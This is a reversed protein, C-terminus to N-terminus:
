RNSHEYWREMISRIDNLRIPKCLFDNMGISTCLDKEGQMVAGTVAIIPIPSRESKAEETRIKKTMEYGDVEPMHCDTLILKYSRNYWCHFGEAGNNAVDCCLGLKELQSKILKQNFPNDEVLLIDRNDSQVKIENSEAQEIDLEANDFDFSFDDISLQEQQHTKVHKELQKITIPQNAYVAIHPAALAIAEVFAPETYVMINHSSDLQPTLQLFLDHTNTLILNYSSRDANALKQINDTIVNVDFISQALKLIHQNNISLEGILYCNLKAKPEEEQENLELWFPASVTFKSGHNVQSEIHIKGGMLDILKGCISLGLGTGGFKRTTSKEAQTFPTFLKQITDASMGIGTDEISVVVESQYINLRNYHTNVTIKKHKNQECNTFKVANGLINLLIQRFRNEDGKLILKKELSEFVALEIGKEKASASFTCVVDAIVTPLDFKVTELELKGAEIKNLDLLDNLITILHNASCSATNVLERPEATLTCHSLLDLAGIIGNLPTRLEHSIMSLFESKIKNAREAKQLTNYLQATRENVRTELETNLKKLAQQTIHIETQDVCVGDIRCYEGKYNKGVRGQAFVYIIEGNKLISRYHQKFEVGTRLSNELAEQVRPKDEPHLLEVWKNLNGIDDPSLKFITNALMDWKWLWQNGSKTARWTGIKGAEIALQKSEDADNLAIVTTKEVTCDQLTGNIWQGDTKNICSGKLSFWSQQGTHKLRFEFQLPVGFQANNEFFLPFLARDDPHVLSLIKRWTLQTSSTIGLINKSIGSLYVTKSEVNYRWIGINSSNIADNLFRIHDNNTKHLELLFCFGDDVNLKNLSIRASKYHGVYFNETIAELNFQTAIDLGLLIESKLLNLAAQSVFEIQLDCNTLLYPTNSDM